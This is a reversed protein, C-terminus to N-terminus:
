RLSSLLCIIWIISRFMEERFKQYARKLHTKVTNVSVGLTAAIENYKLGKFAHLRVVNQMQDPLENLIKELKKLNEEPLAELSYAFLLAEKIQDQHKDIIRLKKIRNYSKNRTCTFLYAKMTNGAPIDAPNSWLDLFVEQVIDKAEESDYLIGRAFRVLLSYYDTYLERFYETNGPVIRKSSM